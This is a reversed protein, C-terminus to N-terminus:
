YPTNHAINFLKQMLKKTREHKKVSRALEDLQTMRVSPIVQAYQLGENVIIAFLDFLHTTKAGALSSAEAKISHLLVRLKEINEGTFHFATEPNMVRAIITHHTCTTCLNPRNAGFFKKCLGLFLKTSNTTYYDKGMLAFYLKLILTDKQSLKQELSSDNLTEWDIKM